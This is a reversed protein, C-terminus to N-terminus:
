AEERLERLLADCTGGPNEDAFIFASPNDNYRHKPRYYWEHRDASFCAILRLPVECISTPDGVRMRVMITADRNIEAGCGSAPIPYSVIEVPDAKM